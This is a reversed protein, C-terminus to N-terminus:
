RRNRALRAMEVFTKGGTNRPTYAVGDAMRAFVRYLGEAVRYQVAIVAGDLLMAQYASQQRTDALDGHWKRIKGSMTLVKRWGHQLDPLSALEPADTLQTM